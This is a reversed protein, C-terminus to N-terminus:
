SGSTSEAVLRAVADEIGTALEDVDPTTDYDGIIGFILEDAYSVIAVGTRLQIAIPPIPLMRVVERGMMRLRKRPGPVNTAVTVVGRQPLRMLARVAWATVPFPILNAAALFMSGAERQGSGKARTLRRHVARLQDVPNEKEVPLFPLMLSVRNDVSVEDNSRISVPVLTRLSDRRPREGRRVIAARFSDTIATLAVDNITVDFAECVKMVDELAVKAAAYRRM